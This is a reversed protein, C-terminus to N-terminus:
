EGVQNLNRLIDSLVFAQNLEPDKAGYLLTVMKVESIKRVRKLDDQRHMLEARYRKAFDSFREKKHDFWKRLEATPALDKNWEDFHTEEKKLGRPWVRDVLIRYGDGTGPPDYVRKIQINTAKRM